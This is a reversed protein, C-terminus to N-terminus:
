GAGVLADVAYGVLVVATVGLVAAAARSPETPGRPDNVLVLAVGGSLAMGVGAGGLLVALVTAETVVSPLSLAALLVGCGTFGVWFSREFNM